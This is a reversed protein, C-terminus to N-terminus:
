RGRVDEALTDLWSLVEDWRYRLHKGVRYSRPGKDKYRWGYLTSVPIDLRRAVEQASIFSADSARALEDAKPTSIGQM